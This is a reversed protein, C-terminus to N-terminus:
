RNPRVSAARVAGFEAVVSALSRFVFRGEPVYTNEDFGALPTSDNRAFRLARYSFVRESDALHGVVETISWKEPAYRFQERAAPVRALLAATDVVQRELLALLDGDPVKSIYTAYYPTYEGEAPRAVIM